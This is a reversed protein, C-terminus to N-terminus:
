ATWRSFEIDLTKLAAAALAKPNRAGAAIATLVDQHLEEEKGHAREDDQSDQFHNVLEIVRQEVEAVTLKRAQGALADDIVENVRRNKEEENMGPEQEASDGASCQEAWRHDWLADLVSGKTAGGTRSEWGCSCTVDWGPWSGRMKSNHPIKVLPTGYGGAYAFWRARHAKMTEPRILYQLPHSAM